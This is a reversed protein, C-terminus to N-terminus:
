EKKKLFWNGSLLPLQKVNLNYNNLKYFVVYILQLRKIPNYLNYLQLFSQKDKKNWKFIYKESEISSGPFQIAYKYKPLEPKLKNAFTKLFTAPFNLPATEKIELEVQCYYLTDLSNSITDKLPIQKLTFNTKSIYENVLLCMLKSQENRIFFENWQNTNEIFPLTGFIPTIISFVKNSDVSQALVNENVIFSFLVIFIFKM